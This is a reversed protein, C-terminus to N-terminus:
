SSASKVHNSATRAAPRYPSRDMHIVQLGIVATLLDAIGIAVNSAVSTFGAALSVPTVVFLQFLGLVLPLAAWPRPWQQHRLALVGLGILGIDAVLVGLGFVTSAASVASADADDTRVLILVLEGPVTLMMGTVAAASLLRSGLGRRVIDARTLGVIGLAMLLQTLGFLLQMFVYDHPTLPWSLKDHPVQPEVVFLWANGAIALAAGLVACSGLTRNSTPGM